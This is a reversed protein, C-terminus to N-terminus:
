EGGAPAAALVQYRHQYTSMDFIGHLSAGLDALWRLGPADAEFRIAHAVTWLHPKGAPDAVFGYGTTEFRVVDGATTEITGAFEMDCRTEGVVEFLDWHVAGELDAGAISGGGSGLYEGRHSQDEPTVRALGPTYELSLDFLPRVSTSRPTATRNM